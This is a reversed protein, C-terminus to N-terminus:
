PGNRRYALLNVTSPARRRPVSPIAVSGPRKEDEDRRTVLRNVHWGAACHKIRPDFAPTRAIRGAELLGPSHYHKLALVGYSEVVCCRFIFGKM